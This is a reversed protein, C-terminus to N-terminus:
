AAEFSGAFMSDLGSSVGREIGSRVNDIRRYMAQAVNQGVKQATRDITEDYTEPIKSITSSWHPDSRLFDECQPCTLAWVKVPAGKV